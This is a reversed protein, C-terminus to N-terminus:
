IMEPGKKGNRRRKIKKKSSCCSYMTLKIIIIIFLDQDVVELKKKMLEYLVTFTDSVATSSKLSTQLLSSLM